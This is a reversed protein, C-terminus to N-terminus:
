NYGNQNNSQWRWTDECMERISYEASFGLLDRALSCDAYSTGVDGPRRAQVLYPIERGSADGFARIMDLVSYGSGTGLNVTLLGPSRLLKELALVHGRALDVVHIFDRVGTGDPTDYDDGFVSVHERRGVAVQSVFPMLNNPTDRPDEGILGSAHAGVPNFYRLIAIAWEPEAASLDRLVDEVMQKTRGYPNVAGLPHNEDLPLYQPSGYVTASSSFIFRNVGATKMASLLALSGTINNDYYDLPIRASEGVSKLGAFHMVGVFSKSALVRELLAQDRIDGDIREISRGTIQEVRDLSAPSANSYNDLVTVSYGKELLCVCTHSGIYGAGGTVLINAATM